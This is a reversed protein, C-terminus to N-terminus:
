SRAAPERSATKPKRHAWRIAPQEVFFYSATACLVTLTFVIAGRELLLSAFTGRTIWFNTQTVWIPHWLYVGYSILGLGVMVPSTLARRIAGHTQTGFVAPLVMFLAVFGFVLQIGWIQLKDNVVFPTLPLNFQTGVWFLEAALLWSVWPHDGLARIVWPLRNGTALWASGVALLMGFAFWDMYSIIWLHIGTEQFWGGFNGKSYGSFSWIDLGRLIVSAAGLSALGIVQARLKSRLPADRPTLRRLAWAILPLLLYFSIEIVLTWEVGLGVNWYGTRYNGLLPYMTLLDGFKTHPALGLLILATLAVWYAPYIRAFRRKWFTLLRPTGRSEFAALVFPRYLLFGSIVFFISVGFSGFYRVPVLSPASHGSSRADVQASEVLHFLLVALAALARLGDFCPFQSHPPPAGHAEDPTDREPAVVSM